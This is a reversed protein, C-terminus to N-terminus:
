VHFPELVEVSHGDPDRLVMRRGCPSDQPPTTVSGGRSIVAAALAEMGTMRFGLRTRSTVDDISTARYIEFVTEGLECALHMPGGGHQEERFALGLSEYFHRSRDLDLVRIVILCLRPAM